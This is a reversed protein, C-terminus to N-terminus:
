LLVKSKKLSPYSQPFVKYKHESLVKYTITFSRVGINVLPIRQWDGLQMSAFIVFLQSVVQLCILPLYKFILTPAM